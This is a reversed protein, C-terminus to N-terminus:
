SRAHLILRLLDLSRIVSLIQIGERGYHAGFSEKTVECYNPGVIALFVTGIPKLNTGGEPGAIGSIAIAWDSQLRQRLGKAMSLVVEKSVAGHEHLLSQPVNLLHEKTNNAYAIVGGLFNASAGPIITLAASLQGGTCSEAVALTENNEKLLKLVVFALTEDGTGYLFSGTRSQIEKKTTSILQQAKEQTKAKATVRIKLDGLSAYPAVTPNKQNMLDSLKEALNSESIGTFKLFESSLVEQLDLKKRLWEMVTDNWMQRMEHPVGPLCIISFNPNPTWIIGPATGFKNPIIEASEPFFAQKRNNKSIKIQQSYQKSKIENWIDKREKLDYDFTKAVTEITIDDPTPGLGGTTILVRSRFSSEQIIEQLRRQNDGVVSQRYHPLGLSAVKESLWRSNSNLINGLLLETGICLIETTNTILEKDAIM